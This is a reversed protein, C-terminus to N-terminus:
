KKQKSFNIKKDATLENFFDIQVDLAKNIFVQTEQNNWNKVIDFVEKNVKIKGDCSENWLILILNEKDKYNNKVVFNLLEADSTYDFTKVLSELFIKNNFKLWAM